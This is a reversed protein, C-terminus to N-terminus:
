RVTDFLSIPYLNDIYKCILLEQEELFIQITQTWEYDGLSLSYKLFALKMMINWPFTEYRLHNSSLAVYSTKPNYPLPSKRARLVCWSFSCLVYRFWHCIDQCRQRRSRWLQFTSRDRETSWNSRYFTCCLTLSHMTSHTVMTSRQSVRL